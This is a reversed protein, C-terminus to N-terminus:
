EDRNSAAEPARDLDDDVGDVTFDLQLKEIGIDVMVLDQGPPIKIQTKLENTHSPVDKDLVAAVEHGDDVALALFDLTRTRVPPNRFTSRGRTLLVVPTSAPQHITCGWPEEFEQQWNLTGDDRSIAFLANTTEHDNGERTHLQSDAPLERPSPRRKPLLFFQDE